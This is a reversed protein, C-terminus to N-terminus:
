SSRRFRCSGQCRGIGLHGYKKLDLDYGYSIPVELLLIGRPTVTSEALKNKLTTESTLDSSAIQSIQPSAGGEFTGFVGSGFHKIQVGVATNATVLLNDSDSINNVAAVLNTTDASLSSYSSNKVSKDWADYKTSLNDLDGALNKGPSLGVGATISVSVTKEAFALGAPNWYPAMAGNTRAVGAGGVGLAGNGVPQFELANAMVPLSLGVLAIAAMMKKM